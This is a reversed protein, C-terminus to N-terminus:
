FTSNEPVMVAQFENFHHRIRIGLIQDPQTSNYVYHVWHPKLLRHPDTCDEISPYLRIEARLREKNKSAFISACQLNMKKDAMKLGGARLLAYDVWVTEDSNQTVIRPQDYIPLDLVSDLELFDEGRSTGVVLRAKSTVESWFERLDNKKLDQAKPDMASIVTFAIVMMLSNM